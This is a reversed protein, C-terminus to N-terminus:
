RASRGNITLSWELELDRRLSHFVSCYKEFSLMVARRAKAEDVEGELAFESQLRRVYRPPEDQRVARTTVRLGRLDQRGKELILVVDIATCAAVAELLLAVPNPAARQEGDIETAHDGRFGTFRQGEGAWEVRIEDSWEGDM